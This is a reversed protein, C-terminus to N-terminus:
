LESIISTAARAAELTCSTKPAVKAAGSSGFAVHVRGNTALTRLHSVYAITDESADVFFHMDQVSIKFKPQPPYLLRSINVNHLSEPQKAMDTM